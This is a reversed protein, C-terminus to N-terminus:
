DELDIIIREGSKKVIEVSKKNKKLPSYFISRQPSIVVKEKKSDKEIFLL